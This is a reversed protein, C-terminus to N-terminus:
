QLQSILLPLMALYLQMNKLGALEQEKLYMYRVLNIISVMMLYMQLLEIALMM